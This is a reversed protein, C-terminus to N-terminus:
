RAAPAPARAAQPAPLRAALAALRAAAQRLPPFHAFWITEPALAALKRISAHAQPMDATFLSSPGSLRGFRYQLTDGTYLRGLAPWWLALSGATHGPIHLVRAGGCGPIEDGERVATVALRDPVIAQNIRRVLPGGAQRAIPHPYPETGALNRAEAEHVLVEARTQRLLSPLGAIHDVHAHSAVIRRIQEPRIGLRALQRLIVRASGWLGTDLLTVEGGDVVALVWCGPAWLRYVGPAIASRVRFSTAPPM